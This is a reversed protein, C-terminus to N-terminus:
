RPIMRPKKIRMDRQISYSLQSLFIHYIEIKDVILLFTWEQSFNNSYYGAINKDRSIFRTNQTFPLLLFLTSVIKLLPTMFPIPSQIVGIQVSYQNYTLLFVSSFLLHM